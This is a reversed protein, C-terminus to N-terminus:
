NTIESVDYNAFKKMYSEISTGFGDKLVCKGDKKLYTGVGKVSEINYGFEKLTELNREITYRRANIGKQRLHKAIEKQTILHEEDTQEKLINLVHLITGLNKRKRM